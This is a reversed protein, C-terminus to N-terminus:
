PTLPAASALSEAWAAFAADIEASQGPELHATILVARGSRVVREGVVPSRTLAAEVEIADAETDWSSFWVAVSEDGRVYVRVRDGDWGGGAGMDRDATGRGFFISMELEGLTDEDLVTFGSAELAGFAPLAIDRGVEGALYKEPHLVQETTTPPARHLADVAAWDGPGHMAACLLLGDFYHSLLPVRIIPPARELEAGRAQSLGQDLLAQVRSLDATFTRLPVGVGDTMFGIMALTADGEIVSAFANDGDISRELDMSESLGLNQDQLAHVYEHVLVSASEPSPSRALERMVDDRIVMVDREPDYYGVVQEGMVGLLMAEVDLDAPLMGLTVYFRQARDLEDQEISGAIFSTIETATQIRVPVPRLFSLGRVREATRELTEISRREAATPARGLLPAVVEGGSNESSVPESSPEPSTGGCGMVLALAALAARV